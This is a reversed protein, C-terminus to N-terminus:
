GDAGAEQLNSAPLSSHRVIFGINEERLARIEPLLRKGEEANFGVAMWCSSWAGLSVRWYKLLWRRGDASEGLWTDASAAPPLGDRWTPESVTM